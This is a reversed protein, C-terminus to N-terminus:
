ECHSSSIELKTPALKTKLFSNIPVCILGLHLTTNAHASAKMLKKKTIVVNSNVLYSSAHSSSVALKLKKYDRCVKM